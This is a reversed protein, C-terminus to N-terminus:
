RCQKPLNTSGWLLPFEKSFPWRQLYAKIDLLRAAQDWKRDVRNRVNWRTSLDVEQVQPWTRGSTISEIYWCYTLISGNEGLNSKEPYKIVCSVHAKLSLFGDLKVALAWRRGEGVLYALTQSGRSKKPLGWSSNQAQTPFHSLVMERSTGQQAESQSTAIPGLSDEWSKRGHSQGGKQNPLVTTM